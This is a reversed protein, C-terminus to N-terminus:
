RGKPSKHKLAIICLPQATNDKKIKAYKHRFTLIKKNKENIQCFILPTKWKKLTLFDNFVTIKLPKAGTKLVKWLM